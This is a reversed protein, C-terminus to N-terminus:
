MPNSSNWYVPALTLGDVGRLMRHALIDMWFLFTVLSFVRWMIEDSRLSPHMDSPLLAAAAADETEITM